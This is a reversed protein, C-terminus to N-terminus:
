IEYFEFETRKHKREGAKIFPSPFNPKNVADPYFQTEFCLAPNERYVVGGKGRIGRVANATYFQMGPMDTYVKMGIGTAESEALAAFYLKKDDKNLVYNIDYGKSSCYPKFSKDFNDKIRKKELFDFASGEINLIEGTPILKKDVKTVSNSNIKVFHNLVEGSDYGALNFYCHNTLNVVTDKDSKYYYDIILKKDETVTYETKVELRGPFGQDKDESILEFIIHGEGEKVYCSSKWKRFQYGYGSHLCAGPINKKLRYTEGNINFKAKSIRNAYRGIVAGFAPWNRKYDEMEDFGLVVDTDKGYKDKVVFSMIAAGIDCFSAKFNDGQVEYKYVDGSEEQGFLIKKIHM